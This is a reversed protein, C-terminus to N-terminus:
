LDISDENRVNFYHIVDDRLQMNRDTLQLVGQIDYKLDLEPDYGDGVLIKWRDQYRRHQKSGHWYHNVTGNVVGVKRQVYREARDQWRSWYNVYSKSIGIPFSKDVQGLLAYAMHRDGSGLIGIDGLGGLDSIASRRAAWAYGTHM